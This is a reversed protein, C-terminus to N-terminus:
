ERSERSEDDVNFKKQVIDLVAMVDKESAGGGLRQGDIRDVPAINRSTM